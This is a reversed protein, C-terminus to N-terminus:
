LLLTWENAGVRMASIVGYQVNAALGAPSNLTVGAGALFSTLGAGAQYISLRENQVWLGTEDNPITLVIADASTAKIVTNADTNAATASATIARGIHDGELLSWTVGDSVLVESGVQVTGAGFGAATPLEIDATFTSGYWEAGHKMTYAWGSVDLATTSVVFKDNINPLTACLRKVNHALRELDAASSLAIIIETYHGSRAANHGPEIIGGVIPLVSKDKTANAVIVNVPYSQAAFAAIMAAVVSSQSNLTVTSSM